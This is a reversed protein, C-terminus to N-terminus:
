EAANDINRPNFTDIYMNEKKHMRRVHSRLNDRRSSRYTCHPCLHPKEGTHMRRHQIIKKLQVSNFGCIDCQFEKGSRHKKMHKRLDAETSRDKGCIQCSVKVVFQKSGSMHLKHHKRLAKEITCKYPCMHCKYEEAAHRMRQPFGASSKSRKKGTTSYGEALHKRLHKDLKDRRSTQYSCTQCQYIQNVEEDQEGVNPNHFKNIHKRLSSRSKLLTGCEGCNYGISQVIDEEQMVDTDIVLNTDDYDGDDATGGSSMGLGLSHRMSNGGIVIENGVSQLNSGVVVENGDIVGSEHKLMNSVLIVDSGQPDGGVEMNQGVVFDSHGLSSSGFVDNPLMSNASSGYEQKLSSYSDLVMGSTHSLSPTQQNNKNRGRQRTQFSKSSGSNSSSILYRSSMRQDGGSLMHDTQEYDSGLGLLGSESMLDNNMMSNSVPSYLVDQRRSSRRSM